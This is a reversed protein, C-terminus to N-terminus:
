PSRSTTSCITRIRRVCVARHQELGESALLQPRLQRGVRNRRDHQFRHRAPVRREGSLLDRAAARRGAGTATRSWRSARPCAPRSLDKRSSRERGQRAGGCRRDVRQPHGQGACDAPRRRVRVPRPNLFNYFIGGAARIATKGDGTLDWAFGVRPGYSFYPMDYYWGAKEGPLGGGFMGNTISGSGPVTTGQYAYAM